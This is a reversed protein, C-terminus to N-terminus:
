FCNRNDRYLERRDFRLNRRDRYVERRDHALDRRDFYRKHDEIEARSVIGLRFSLFELVPKARWSPVTLVLLGGPKLM